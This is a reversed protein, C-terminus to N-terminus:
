DKNQPDFNALVKYNSPEHVWLDSESPNLHVLVKEM